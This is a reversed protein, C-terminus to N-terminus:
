VAQWTGTNVDYMQFDRMATGDVQEMIALFQDDDLCDLLDDAYHLCYDLSRADDNQCMTVVARYFSLCLSM